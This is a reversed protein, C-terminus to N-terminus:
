RWEGNRRGLNFNDLWVAVRLLGIFPAAIVLGAGTAAVLLTNGAVGAARSAAESARSSTNDTM